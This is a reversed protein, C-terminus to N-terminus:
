SEGESTLALQRPPQTEYPTLTFPVKFGQIVELVWQDQTVRRWNDLCHALRGALLRAQKALAQAVPVIGMERLQTVTVSPYFDQLEPLISLVPLNTYAYVIQPAQAM